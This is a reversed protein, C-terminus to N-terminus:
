GSRSRAYDSRCSAVHSLKRSRGTNSTGDRMPSPLHACPRAWVGARTRRLSFAQLDRRVGLRLHGCECGCEVGTVRACGAWGAPEGRAWQRCPVRACRASPSAGRGRACGRTDRRTYVVSWPEDIMMMGAPGGPTRPGDRLELPVRLIGIHSGHHLGYPAYHRLLWFLM